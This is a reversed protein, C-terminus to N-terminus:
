LAKVRLAAIRVDVGEKIGHIIQRRAVDLSDQIFGAGHAHVVIRVDAIFVLALRRVRISPTEIGDEAAIHVALVCVGISAIGVSPTRAPILGVLTDAGIQM